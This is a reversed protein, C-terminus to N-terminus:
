ALSINFDKVFSNLCVISYAWVYHVRSFPVRRPSFLTEYFILFFINWPTSYIASLCVGTLFIEPQNHVLLIPRQERSRRYICIPNKNVTSEASFSWWIIKKLSKFSIGRFRLAWTCFQCSCFMGLFWKEIPHVYKRKFHEHLFVM